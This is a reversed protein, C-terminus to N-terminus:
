VDLSVQTQKKFHLALGISKPTEKLTFKGTADDFSGLEFLTFDDPYKCFVTSPDNCAETFSREAQGATLTYFPQMFCEAKADYISYIRM